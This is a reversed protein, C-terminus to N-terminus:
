ITPLPVPLPTTAQAVQAAAFAGAVRVYNKLHPIAEQAEGCLILARGVSYSLRAEGQADGAQRAAQLALELAALSGRLDGRAEAAEAERGRVGMLEAAASAMAAANGKAQALARRAEHHACSAALGGRQEECRGLEDLCRLEAEADGASRALELARLFFMVASGCKGEGFYRSGIALLSQLLKSTDGAARAAEGEALSQAIGSLVAVSEPSEGAALERRSLYFLDTFSQLSGASLLSVFLNEEEM